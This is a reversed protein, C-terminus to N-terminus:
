VFYKRPNVPSWRSPYDYEYSPAPAIIRFNAKITTYAASGPTIGTFSMGSYSAGGNHTSRFYLAFGSTSEVIFAGYVQLARCIIRAERGLTLTDLDLSPNLQIRTGGPVSGTPHADFTKAPPSVGSQMKQSVGQDLGIALAHPILGATLEEPFILGGLLSANSSRGTWPGPSTGGSPDWWGPGNLRFVGQGTATLTGSTNKAAQYFNFIRNNPRDVIILHGDSDPTGFSDSAVPVDSTGWRFSGEVGGLVLQRPSGAAPESVNVTWSSQNLQFGSFTSLATVIAASNSALTPSAAIASNWPSSASFYSATTPTPDPTSGGPEEEAAAPNPCSFSAVTISASPKFNNEVYVRSTTTAAVFQIEYSGAASIYQTSYDAATDTREVGWAWQNTISTVVMTVTYTLGVVTTFSQEIGKADNNGAITAQGATAYDPTSANRVTWGAGAATDFSGNTLLESAASVNVTITYDTDNTAADAINIPCLYSNNADADTPSAFDKATMTLTATTSPNSVTLTFLAADLTGGKTWTVAEDATLVQSFATLNALTYTQSSLLTPATVDAGGDAADTVTLTHATTSANGATDTAIVNFNYVNNAGTDVPSEYDFPGGTIVGTSAIIQFRPADDGSLSFTASEDATVTHSFAVNEAVTLGVSSTITPATTDPSVESVDTVTIAFTQEAYGAAGGVTIGNSARITVNHSTATEYDLLNKLVLASGNIEFKNDADTIISFTVAPNGDAALSAVTAGISANEAISTGSLWLTSPSAQPSIIQNVIPELNAVTLAQSIATAIATGITGAVAETVATGVTATVVQVIYETLDTVSVTTATRTRWSTVNTLGGGPITM